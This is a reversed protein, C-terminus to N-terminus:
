KSEMEDTVEVIFYRQPASLQTGIYDNKMKYARFSIDIDQGIGMHDGQGMKYATPIGPDNFDIGTIVGEAVINLEVLKGDLLYAKAIQDIKM